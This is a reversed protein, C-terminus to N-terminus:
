KKANMVELLCILKNLKDDSVNNRNVELWVRLLEDPQKNNGINHREDRLRRNEYAQFIVIVLLVTITVGAVGFAILTITEQAM